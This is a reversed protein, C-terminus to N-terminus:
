IAVYIHPSAYAQTQMLKEKIDREWFKEKERHISHGTEEDFANQCAEREILLRSFIEDAQTRIEEFSKGKTKMKGLEIRILRAYYEEIDFHAQEHELLESDHVKIWSKEPVFYAHISFKLRREASSIEMGLGLHSGASFHSDEIPARKFDTGTLKIKPSWYIVNENTVPENKNSYTNPLTLSSIAAAAVVIIKSWM